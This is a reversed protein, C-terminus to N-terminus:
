FTIRLFVIAYQNIYLFSFYMGCLEFVIANRVLSFFFSDFLNIREVFCVEVLLVDRNM